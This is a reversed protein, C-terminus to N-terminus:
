VPPKRHRLLGSVILGIGLAGVAAGKWVAGEGVAAGTMAIAIGMCVIVAGAILFRPVLPDVAIKIRTPFYRMFGDGDSTRGSYAFNPMEVLKTMAHPTSRKEM